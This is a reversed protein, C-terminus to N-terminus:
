NSQTITATNHNGYATVMASHDNGTQTVVAQNFDGTLGINAQHDFGGQLVLADNHNGEINIGRIFEGRAVSTNYDGLQIIAARNDGGAIKISADNNYGNGQINGLVFGIIQLEFGDIVPVGAFGGQLGPGDIPLEPNLDGGGPIGAGSFGQLILSQNDSENQIRSDAKNSSGFQMIASEHGRQSQQMRAMNAQGVQLTIGSNNGNFVLTESHNNDGVQFTFHHNYEDDAFARQKIYADNDSGLQEIIARGDFQTAGDFGQVIEGDNDDGVQGIIGINFGGNQTVIGNNENGLQSINAQNSQAFSVGATLLVAALATTLTKM